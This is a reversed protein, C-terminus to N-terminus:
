IRIVRQVIYKPCSFADDPESTKHGKQFDKIYSTSALLFNWHAALDFAPIAVKASESADDGFVHEEETGFDADDITALAAERVYKYRHNQELYSHQKGFSDKCVAYYHKGSLLLFCFQLFLVALRM